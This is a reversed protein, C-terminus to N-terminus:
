RKSLLPCILVGDKITIASQFYPWELGVSQLPMYMDYWMPWVTLIGVIMYALRTGNHTLTAFIKDNHSIKKESNEM